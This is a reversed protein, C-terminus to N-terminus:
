RVHGGSAYVHLEAPVGAKKFAIFKDITSNALSDDYAVALFVPPVNKKNMTDATLENKAKNGKSGLAGASYILAAFDLRSSVKDVADV